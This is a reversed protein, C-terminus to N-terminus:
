WTAVDESVDDCWVWLGAFGSFWCNVCCIVFIAAAWVVAFWCAFCCGMLCGVCAGVLYFLGFRWWLVFNLCLCMFCAWVFCDIMYFMSLLM